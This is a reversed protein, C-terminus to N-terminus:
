ARVERVRADARFPRHWSSIRCLDYDAAPPKPRTQAGTM